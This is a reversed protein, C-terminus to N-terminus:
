CNDTRAIELLCKSQRSLHSAATIFVTGAVLLMEGSSLTTDNKMVRSEVQLTKEM